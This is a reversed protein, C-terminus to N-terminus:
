IDMHHDSTMSPSSNISRFSGASDGAETPASNRMYPHEHRQERSDGFFIWCHRIDTRRIHMPLQGFGHELALNLDLDKAMLKPARGDTYPSRAHDLETRLPM